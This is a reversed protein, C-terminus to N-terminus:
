NKTFGRSGHGESSVGLPAYACSFMHGCMSWASGESGGVGGRVDPVYM